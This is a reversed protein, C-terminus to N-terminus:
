EPISYNFWTCSIVECRPYATEAKEAAEDEDIAQCDFAIKSKHGRHEYLMVRFPKLGPHAFIERQRHREVAMRFIEVQPAGVRKFPEGLDRAELAAGLWAVTEWPSQGYTSAWGLHKVESWFAKIAAETAGADVLNDMVIDETSKFAGIASDSFRWWKKLADICTLHVAIQQEVNLM